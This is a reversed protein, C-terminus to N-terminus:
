CGIIRLESFARFVLSFLQLETEQSLFEANFLLIFKDRM